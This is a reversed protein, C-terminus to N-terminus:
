RPLIQNANAIAIVIPFSAFLIWGPIFLPTVPFPALTYFVPLMLLVVGLHVAGAFVTAGYEGFESFKIKRRAYGEGVLGVLFPLVFPIWGMLMRLRLVVVYVMAGLTEIYNNTLAVTAGVGGALPMTSERRDKETVYARRTTDIFGTDVFMAEYAAKADAAVERADHQGFASTIMRLETKANEWQSQPNSFMPVVLFVVFAAVFWFFAHKIWM